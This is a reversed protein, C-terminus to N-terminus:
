KKKKPREDIKKEVFEPVKPKSLPKPASFKNQVNQKPKPKPKPKSEIKKSTTKDSIELIEIPIETVENTKSFTMLKSIMILTIIVFIHFFVSKFLNTIM